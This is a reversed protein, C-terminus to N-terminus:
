IKSYHLLASVRHGAAICSLTREPHAQHDEKKLTLPGEEGQRQSGEGPNVVLAVPDSVGDYPSDYPEQPRECAEFSEEQKFGYEVEDNAQSFM